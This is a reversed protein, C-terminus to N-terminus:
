PLSRQSQCATIWAGPTPTGKLATVRTGAANVAAVTAFCVIFSALVLAALVWVM